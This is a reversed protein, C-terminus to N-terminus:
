HYLYSWLGNLKSGQFQQKFNQSDVSVGDGLIPTPKPIHPNVGECKGVSKHTHSTVGMSEQSAGKCGRQRPRLGLALTTVILFGNFAIVLPKITTSM